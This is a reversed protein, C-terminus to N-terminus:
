AVRGDDTSKNAALVYEIPEDPDLIEGADVTLFRIEDNVDRRTRLASAFEVAADVLIGLTIGLVLAAVCVGVILYVIETVTTM